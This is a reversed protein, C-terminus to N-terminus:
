RALQVSTGVRISMLCGSTSPSLGASPSTSMQMQQHLPRRLDDRASLNFAPQPAVVQGLAVDKAGQDVAQALRDIGIDMFMEMKRRCTDLDGIIVSDLHRITEFIEENSIETSELELYTLSKIEGIAKAGELTVISENIYLTNLLIHM